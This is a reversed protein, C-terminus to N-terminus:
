RWPKELQKWVQDNAMHGQVVTDCHSSLLSQMGALEEKQRGDRNVQGLPLHHVPILRAVVACLNGGYQQTATGSGRWVQGLGGGEDM